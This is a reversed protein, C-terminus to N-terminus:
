QSRFAARRTLHQPLGLWGVPTVLCTSAHARAQLAGCWSSPLAKKRLKKILRLCDAAVVVRGSLLDVVTEAV